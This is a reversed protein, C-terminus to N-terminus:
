LYVSNNWVEISFKLMKIRTTESSTSDYNKNTYQLINVIFIIKVSRKFGDNVSRKFLKCFKIIIAISIIIVNESRNFLKSVFTYLM